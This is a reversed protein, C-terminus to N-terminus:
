RGLNFRFGMELNMTFPQQTRISVPQGCDFYYRLSPNIYLGLYDTVLFSVGIGAAASVQVGSVSETYIITSATTPISYRNLFAKELSGGGYAYFITKRSRLIDYNFTVPIGAYHISSRIDGNVTNVVVGEQIEKYIGTFTRDLFSYTLGTELSWRDKLPIRVGVGFSVPMAYTSEKSLQTISQNRNGRRSLLSYGLGEASANTSVDGGLKFSIGRRSPRHSDEYAMQAFPDEISSPGEAPTEGVRLDKESGVEQVTREVPIEEETIGSPEAQLTEEPLIQAILNRPHSPAAAGAEATEGPEAAAADPIVETAMSDFSQGAAVLDPNTNTQNITGNHFLFVGAAIAAAAAVPLVMRRWDLVVRNRRSVKTSVSAWVRSPVEEEANEMLSRVIQDFETDKMQM